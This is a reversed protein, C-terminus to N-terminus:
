VTGPRTWRSSRLCGRVGIASVPAADPALIPEIVAATMKKPKNVRTSIPWLADIPVKM